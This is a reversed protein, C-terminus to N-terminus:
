APPEVSTKKAMRFCDFLHAIATEDETLKVVATGASATATATADKPVRKKPARHSYDGLREREIIKWLDAMQQVSAAFWERNRLILVCSYVELKWYNIGIYNYRNAPSEYHAITHEHWENMKDLTDIDFPMYAYFPKGNPETFYIMSGKQQSEGSASSAIFPQTESLSDAVFERRSGYEVFKTELFDCEDLDCVEMQLQMQVWYEKKPSGNIVRSVVNKIELMRGYLSSEPNVNIGDPSAGIFRYDSHPVCGFEEIATDNSAEYIAVSLPEYKQGWHMPSSVNVCIPDEETAERDFERPTNYQSCKEYILSNRAADTGFVKYANSATLLNNRVIYWEPTRQAPQPKDRAIQIARAIYRRKAHFQALATSSPEGAPGEAINLPAPSAALADTTSRHTHVTCLCLDICGAVIENLLIDCVIDQPREGLEDNHGLHASIVSYVYLHATAVFGPEIVASPNDTLYEDVCMMVSDTLDAHDEETLEVTQDTQATTSSSQSSSRSEATHETHVTTCDDDSTYYDTSFDDYEFSSQSLDDFTIESATDNDNEDSCVSERSAVVDGQDFTPLGFLTSM